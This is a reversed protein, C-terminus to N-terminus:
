EEINSEEFDSLRLQHSEGILNDMEIILNRLRLVKEHAEKESLDSEPHVVSNRVKRFEEIEDLLDVRDEEQSLTQIRRQISIWHINEDGGPSQIQYWDSLMYETARIFMIVAATWAGSDLAKLGEQIDNKPRNPLDSWVDDPFLHEPYENLISTDLFGEETGELSKIEERGPIQEIMMQRRQYYRYVFSLYVFLMVVSVGMILPLFNNEISINFAILLVLAAMIITIFFIFVRIMNQFTRDPADPLIEELPSKSM